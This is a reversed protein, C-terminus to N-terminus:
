DEPRAVEPVETGTVWLVDDRHKRAGLKKAVALSALNDPSTSWSPTRGRARVDAAVHAACAPSLGRGRFDARTVVGVDEFSPGLHFPIAVSALETGVFAGFALTSRAAKRHGGHSASIWDIDDELEGLADADDATLRRITAPARPPPAASELTAIVRSWRVAAPFVRAITPEFEPAADIFGVPVLERLEDEDLREPAGTLQVDYGARAIAVRPEPWRDVICRGLGTAVAHQGAMPGPRDPFVRALPERETPAIDIM